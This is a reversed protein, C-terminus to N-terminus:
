PCTISPDMISAMTRAFRYDITNDYAIAWTGVRRANSAMLQTKLLDIDWMNHSGAARNTTPILMGKQSDTLGLHASTAELVAVWWPQGAFEYGAPTPDQWNDPPPQWDGSLAPTFPTTVANPGNNYFQPHVWDILPLISAYAMLPGQAAEPAATVMMGRARLSMITEMLVSASEVASGELDIDVGDLAYEDLFRNIETNVQAATLGTPWHGDQGGISFLIRRARGYPDVGRKWTLIDAKLMELAGRYPGQIQFDISGADDFNAFTLIVINYYCPIDTLLPISELANGSNGYYGIIDVLSPDFVTADPASGDASADDSPTTADMATADATADGVPATADMGADPVPNPESSDDCGVSLLSSFCLM